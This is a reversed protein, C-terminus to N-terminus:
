LVKSLVVSRYNVEPWRVYEVFEYGMREYMAILETAHESTNLALKVIGKERARSEAIAMLRSGIGCRQHRPAVAFQGIEAVDPRDLFPSGNTKMADALTIVGVISDAAVAVFTEGKEMRRKTTAANQHSAVFRMGAAALPAYAAHLLETILDVNDDAGLLRYTVCHRDQSPSVM